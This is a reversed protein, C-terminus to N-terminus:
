KPRKLNFIWFKRLMNFRQLSRKEREQMEEPTMESKWKLYASHDVWRFLPSFIRYLVGGPKFCVAGAFDLIMLRDEKDVIVNDRGRIDNHFVGSQHIAAVIEKLRELLRGSPIDGRYDVLRIGEVYEMVFSLASMNKYYKPTGPIGQIARYARSERWIQLRGLLRIFLSKKSFDKLVFNHGKVDILFLDAKSWRGQHVLSVICREADIQTLFELLHSGQTNVGKDVQISNETM